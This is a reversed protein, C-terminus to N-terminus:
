NVVRVLNRVRQNRQQMKTVSALRLVKIWAATEAWAHGVSRRRPKSGWMKWLRQNFAERGGGWKSEQARKGAESNEVAKIVVQCIKEKKTEQRSSCLCWSPLGNQRTEKNSNRWSKSCHRVCPLCYINQKILWLHLVSCTIRWPTGRKVTDMM